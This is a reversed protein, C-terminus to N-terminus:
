AAIERHLDFGDSNGGRHDAGAFGVPHFLPQKHWGVASAHKPQRLLGRRARDPQAADAPNGYEVPLHQRRAGCDHGSREPESLGLECVPRVAYGAPRYLGGPFPNALTASQTAFNDNTFFINATKRFASGPYQFNTAPSMGFYIGAGGRVVTQQDLQYSFGLRPGLDKRYTPITRM